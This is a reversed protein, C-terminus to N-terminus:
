SQVSLKNDMLTQIPRQLPHALLTAFCNFLKTVHFSWDLVLAKSKPNMEALIDFIGQSTTTPSSSSLLLSPTTLLLLSSHSCLLFTPTLLPPFSVLTVTYWMPWVFKLHYNHLYPWAYKILNTTVFLNPFCKNQVSVLSGAKTSAYLVPIYWGHRGQLENTSAWLIDVHGKVVVSEFFSAQGPDPALLLSFLCM